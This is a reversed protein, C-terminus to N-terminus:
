YSTASLSVNNMSGERYRDFRMHYPLFRYPIDYEKCLAKLLKAVSQTQKTTFAAYYRYGRYESNPYRGLKDYDNDALDIFAKDPGKIAADLECYTYIEGKSDVWKLDSGELYIPGYNVIEIAIIKPNETDASSHHAWYEPEMYEVITGDRYVWYNVAHRKADVIDSPTKCTTSDAGNTAGATFHLCIATKDKKNKRGIPMLKKNFMGRNIVSKLRNFPESDKTYENLKKLKRMKSIPLEIDFIQEEILYPREDLYEYVIKSIKSIDCNDSYLSM